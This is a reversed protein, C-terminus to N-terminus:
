ENRKREETVRVIGAIIFDACPQAMGNGIAKYRRSDSSPKGNFEINTWGDPLGQLRECETPTLRRVTREEDTEQRDAENLAAVNGGGTGMRAALTNVAGKPIERVGDSLHSIDYLPVEKPYEVFNRPSKYDRAAMTSSKESEVIHGIAQVSYTKEDESFVAHRDITNLTFSVNKNVGSGQPGNKEKRGIMSGQLCYADGEAFVAHRDITNLTFSVDKDVGLHHGGNKDKRNIINGAICWSPAQAGDGSVAAVEEGATGSTEPDGPVSAPDFLIEAACRKETAFDAVLFIRRRRQPVGWYQADLTRWSIDCLPVRVMGCGGWRGSKPIPIETQGIESLVARFDNGHNSSFAGTVNEWVFFRPYKGNTADRMERLIRISDYFLSSENGQLGKRNGAVSLNQCPSGACIIDVPTIENGHVGRIDGYSEVEPFHYESVARPFKDIECRWLPKVGAHQAALLWGGIGDFLSGLTLM